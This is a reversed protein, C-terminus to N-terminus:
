PFLASLLDSFLKGAMNLLDYDLQTKNVQVCCNVIISCPLLYCYDITHMKTLFM